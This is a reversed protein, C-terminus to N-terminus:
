FTMNDNETRAIDAFSDCVLEFVDVLAPDFHSGRGEIIIKKAVEPPMPDKYPRKSILADYVDAIAMLRGELPIELGKLGKPYGSGDFKEHHTGAFTSAHNLFAHEPTMSAIKEIAAVGSTVHKKMAEFEEETLRGPKNLIADSISIKGVDHLQASQLLFNIDWSELEIHYVKIELLKDVLLKLYKQTRSVHGGTLGDRFEVMEAITSLIANQLDLVEGTKKNVMEQLNDNYNKLEKKQSTILLQNAIRQLLLPGSFPKYVYDIAGLSLGVLESQEDNRSTLFIVPIENWDNDAKLVKIAEYGDMEPMMVDLLILSPNVQKLVEFLKAASPVPFVEYHEKLMEKGMILNAKNDDVLMIKQRAADM